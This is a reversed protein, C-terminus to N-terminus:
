LRSRGEADVLELQHLTQILSKRDIPKVLYGDCQERFARLINGNDRLASTMLVKAGHGSPIDNRAEQARIERLANQGDLEPMLIDLCILDYPAGVQLAEAVLHVAEVGTTASDVPGYGRLLEQLLLRCTFDDEVVLTKM